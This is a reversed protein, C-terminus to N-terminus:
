RSLFSGARPRFREDQRGSDDPIRRLSVDGTLVGESFGGFVNTKKALAPNCPHRCPCLVKGMPIVPM